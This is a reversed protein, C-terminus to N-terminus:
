KTKGVLLSSIIGCVHVICILTWYSSSVKQLIFLGNILCVVFSVAMMLCLVFSSKVFPKLCWPIMCVALVELLSSTSWLMYVNSDSLFLVVVSLILGFVIGFAVKLYKNEM